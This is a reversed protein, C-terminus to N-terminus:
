EHKSQLGKPLVAVNVEKYLLAGGDVTLYNAIWENSPYDKYECIRDNANGDVYGILAGCDKKLVACYPM